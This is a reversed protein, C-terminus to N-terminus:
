IGVTPTFPVVLNHIMGLNEKKAHMITKDSLSEIGHREQASQKAHEERSSLLGAAAGFCLHLYDLYLLDEGPKKNGSITHSRRHICLAPPTYM